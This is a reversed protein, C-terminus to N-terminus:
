NFSAYGTYEYDNNLLPSQAELIDAPNPYDIIRMDYTSYTKFLNHKTNKTFIQFQKDDFQREDINVFQQNENIIFRRVHYKKTYPNKFLCIQYFKYLKAEPSYKLNDDRTKFVYKKQKHQNKINTNIKNHMYGDVPNIMYKNISDDYNNM